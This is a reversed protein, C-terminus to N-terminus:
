DESITGAFNVVFRESLPLSAAGIVRADPGVTGARVAPPVLGALNLRALRTATEAVLRDRIAAPMWGDILTAEFDIVSSAAGIAHALGDAATVVWADVLDEDVIWGRPAEWLSQADQGRARMMSELASLSALEILQVVRGDSAPVPMSGLAGANGSRGTFLSDRLVVGGGIFYGVYFYLFESPRDGTGFVLEAGCASSADNQLYVPYPCIAEVAARIDTARWEAMADSSLGIVRAWEWIQFPMAIGIGALRESRDPGLPGVLRSIGDLAFRLVGAPTPYRYTAHCRSVVKGEFDVLALETSRRGIKLGLFFAGEPNLAIPVSPQGVKGRV